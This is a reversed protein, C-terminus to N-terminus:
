VAGVKVVTDFVQTKWIALEEDTSCQKLSESFTWLIQKRRLSVTALTERDFEFQKEAQSLTIQKADAFAKVYDAKHASYLVLDDYSLTETTSYQETIQNAFWLLWVFGEGLLACRAAKNVVVQDVHKQKELSRANEKFRFRYFAKPDLKLTPLLDTTWRDTPLSFFRTDLVNRQLFMVRPLNVGYYLISSSSGDILFYTSYLNKM